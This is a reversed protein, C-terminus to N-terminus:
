ARPSEHCPTVDGGSGRRSSALAQRPVAQLATTEAILYGRLTADRPEALSRTNVLM